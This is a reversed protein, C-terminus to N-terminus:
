IYIYLYIYVFAYMYIYIYISLSLSLSMVISTPAELPAAPGRGPPCALRPGRGEGAPAEAADEIIIMMSFNTYDYSDDHNDNISTIYTYICM